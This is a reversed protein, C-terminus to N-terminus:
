HHFYPDTLLQVLHATPRESDSLMLCQKIAKKIHHTSQKLPYCFTSLSTRLYEVMAIGTAPLQYMVSEMLWTLPLTNIIVDTSNGKRKKKLCSIDELKRSM